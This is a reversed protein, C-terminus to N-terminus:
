SWLLALAKLVVYDLVLWEGPKGTLTLDFAGSRIKAPRQAMIIDNDQARTVHATRYTEILAPSVSRGAVLRFAPGWQHDAHLRFNARWRRVDADDKGWAICQLSLAALANFVSYEDSLTELKIPRGFMEAGSLSADFQETLNHAQLALSFMEKYFRRRNRRAGQESFGATTRWFPLDATRYIMNYRERDSLVDIMYGINRGIRGKAEVSVGRGRQELRGLSSLIEGGVGKIEPAHASVVALLYLLPVLQDRSFAQHLNKPLRWGDDSLSHDRFYTLFDGAQAADVQHESRLEDYAHADLARIVLVSAYFWASRWVGDGYPSDNWEGGEPRKVIGSEQDVYQGYKQGAM